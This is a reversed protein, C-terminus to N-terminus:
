VESGDIIFTIQNSKYGEELFDKRMWKLMEERYPVDADM